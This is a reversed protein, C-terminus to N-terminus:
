RALSRRPIQQKADACRDRVLGGAGIGQAGRWPVIALRNQQPM